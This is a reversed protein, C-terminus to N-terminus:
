HIVTAYQFEGLAALEEPRFGYKQLYKLDGPETQQFSVIEDAQSTLMRTIEAPRRSVGIISLDRHRGYKLLELFKEAASGKAPRSPPAYWDVEEALLTLHGLDWALQFLRRQEDDTTFRCVCAFCERNQPAYHELAGYREFILGQHYEVLNDVVLLRSASSARQKALTTKGTGKRGLILTIKNQEALM